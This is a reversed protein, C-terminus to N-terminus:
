IVEAFAESGKDVRCLNRRVPLCLNRPGRSRTVLGRGDPKADEESKGHFGTM